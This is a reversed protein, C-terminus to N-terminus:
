RDNTNYRKTLTPHIMKRIGRQSTVLRRTKAAEVRIGWNKTLTEAYVRGKDRMTATVSFVSLDSISAIRKLEVLLARYNLVISLDQLKASAESYKVILKKIGMEKQRLTCV